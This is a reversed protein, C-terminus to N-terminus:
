NSVFEDIILKFEEYTTTHDLQPNETLIRDPARFLVGRDAQKIMALDNYSDGGALVSFGISQLAIVAKYKGDQQRLRYSIIANRDDVVLSNCFLTPWHLAKMLPRAFESFTDSLIIVQTRNRLWDLFELAGSLPQLTAIVDQIDGLTLQHDRLIGIRYQMLQDYDPVDRTTLRLQEIGTKQAVGIWIEPVLVGELDLCVIHM